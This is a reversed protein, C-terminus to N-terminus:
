CVPHKNKILMQSLSSFSAPESLPLLQAKIDTRHCGRMRLQGIHGQRWWGKSVAWRPFSTFKGISRRDRFPSFAPPQSLVANVGALVVPREKCSSRTSADGHGDGCCNSMSFDSSIHLGMTPPSLSRRSIYPCGWKVPVGANESMSVVNQKNFPFNCMQCYCFSCIVKYWCGIGSIFGPIRFHTCFVVSCFLMYQLSYVPHLIFTFVCM